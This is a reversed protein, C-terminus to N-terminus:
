IIRDVGPEEAQVSVALHSARRPNIFASKEFSRDNDCIRVADSDRPVRHNGPAHLVACGILSAIPPTQRNDCLRPVAPEVVDITKMNFRFIDPVSEITRVAGRQLLPADAAPCSHDTVLEFASVPRRRALDLHFVFCARKAAEDDANEQLCVKASSRLENDSTDGNSLLNGAFNIFFFAAGTNSDDGRIRRQKRIM